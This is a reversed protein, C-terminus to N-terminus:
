NTQNYKSKPLTAFLDDIQSQSPRENEKQPGRLLINYTQDSHYFNSDQGLVHSIKDLTSEIMTLRKIIRNIIQGTLDQFNCLELIKTYNKHLKDKIDEDIIKKNITDIDELADLIGMVSKETQEIVYNLEVSVEPIFNGNFVTKSMTSIKQKLDQIQQSLITVQKSTIYDESVSIYSAITRVFDQALKGLDGDSIVKTSSAKQIKQLELLVANTWAVKNEPNNM